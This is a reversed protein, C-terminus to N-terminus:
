KVKEVLSALEAPTRYGIATEVAEGGRFFMLTPISMIGYRIAIEGAADVNLRCVKIDTNTEALADVHPALMKCPGCWDAYFDVLVLEKAHLVEADFSVSTLDYIM